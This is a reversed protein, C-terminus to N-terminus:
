QRLQRTHKYISEIQDLFEDLTLDSKMWNCIKCCPVVNDIIHGKSSDIRDIGNYIFPEAKQDDGKLNFSNSPPRGCYYCQEQSLSYFSDFDLIEDGYGRDKERSRYGRWVIKALAVIPTYRTEFRHSKPSTHLTARHEAAMCGCSKNRGGKVDAPTALTQNGCDCEVEWLVGDRRRQETPKLFKLRHIKIETMDLNTRTKGPLTAAEAPAGAKQHIPNCCRLNGCTPFVYAGNPVTGHVVM